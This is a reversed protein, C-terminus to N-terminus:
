LQEFSVGSGGRFITRGSLCPQWWTEARFISAVFPDRQAAVTKLGDQM